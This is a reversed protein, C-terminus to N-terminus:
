GPEKRALAEEVLDETRLRPSEISAEISMDKSQSASSHRSNEQIDLEVPTSNEDYKREISPM